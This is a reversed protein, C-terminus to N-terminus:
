LNITLKEMAKGKTTLIHFFYLSQVSLVLVIPYFELDDLEM